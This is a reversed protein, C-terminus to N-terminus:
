VHLKGKLWWELYDRLSPARWTRSDDIPNWSYISPRRIAGAIISFAFNEGNGADAFFLLADLPMYNQTFQASRFLLNEKQIQEVSWILRLGYEGHVGNSEALLEKLDEPLAVNLSEGIATILSPDAPPYFKCDSCLEKILTQYM